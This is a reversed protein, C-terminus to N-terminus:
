GGTYEKARVELQDIMVSWGREEGEPHNTVADKLATCYGEADRKEHQTGNCELGVFQHLENGKSFGLEKARAHFKARVADVGTLKKPAPPRQAKARPAQRPEPTEHDPDEGTEIMFTQRIAYKYAGTLAKPTSKDGLDAGEGVSRVDINTGSPSHTFRVTARLRTRNMSKGSSTPYHDAEIYDVDVVRMTIGAEVMAPRLAEILAAEGAYAFSVGGEKSWQKTVYGVQKYVELIATEINETTM